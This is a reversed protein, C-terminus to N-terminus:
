GTPTHVLATRSPHRQFPAWRDCILEKGAPSSTVLLEPTGPPPRLPAPLRWRMPGQMRPLRGLRHGRATRARRASSPPSMPCHPGTGADAIGLFARTCQRRALLLLLAPQPQSRCAGGGGWGAQCVRATCPHCLSPSHAQRRPSAGDKASRWHVACAGWPCSAPLQPSRRQRRPPEAPASAAQGAHRPLQCRDLAGGLRQLVAPPGSTSSACRTSCESERLKHAGGSHGSATCPALFPASAFPQSPEARRRGGPARQRHKAVCNGPLGGAGKGNM